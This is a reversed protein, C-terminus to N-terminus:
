EKMMWKVAKLTMAMPMMAGLRRMMKNMFGPVVERQGRIMAQVGIRAVTKADMMHVRRLKLAEMHAEQFFDTDTPGPCLVTVSVGTGKLEEWLACSFSYVYAKSAYYVAGYPGPQFAATSAVNLIRGDRRSIMDNLFLKTLDTLVMCNVTLMDDDRKKETNYFVGTNGFGANNILGTVTTKENVCWDYLRQVAGVETLDLPIVLVNIKYEAQLADRLSLLVNESRATLILNQGLRACEYAMEKGLGKSAGTILTYTMVGGGKKTYM